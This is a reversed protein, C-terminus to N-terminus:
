YLRDLKRIPTEPKELVYEVRQMNIGSATSNSNTAEESNLHKSRPEYYLPKYFSPRSLPATNM